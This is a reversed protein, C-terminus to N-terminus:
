FRSGVSFGFVFELGSVFDWGGADVIYNVISNVPVIVGVRVLNCSYGAFYERAASATLVAHSEAKVQGSFMHLRM